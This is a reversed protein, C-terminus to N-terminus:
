FVSVILVIYMDNAIRNSVLFLENFASDAIHSANSKIRSGNVIFGMTDTLQSKSTSTRYNYEGLKMALLEFVDGQMGIHDPLEDLAFVEFKIADM